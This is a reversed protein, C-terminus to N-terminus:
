KNKGHEALIRIVDAISLNTYKSIQEISIKDNHLALIVEIKGKQIGIQEGKAEADAILTKETRISDWYKDYAELEAKTYGSEKTLELAEAIEPVSRLENLLNEDLMEQGNEIESIFRLWLISLKRETMNKVKFKPLEIFILQLGDITKHQDETHVLRYHHYYLPSDKDFIENILSLAYVPKLGKYELGKDLQRIYAKSANFLVRSKFSDTWLMQMEVIFQRGSNDVCRVDVISNKIIPIEPVLEPPLYEIRQITQGDDLPLLANLFSLLINAHGGFVKKFVLDNKPDLYRM